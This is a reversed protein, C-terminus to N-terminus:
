SRAPVGIHLFTPRGGRGRQGDRTQVHEACLQPAPSPAMQARAHARLEPLEAAAGVVNDANQVIHQQVGNFGDIWMTCMPCATAQRKGFMLHYVILSPDPTAFLERLRVTRVPEDDADLNAPGEQFEYDCVSSEQPLNRRLSAVPEIEEVMAREALRLEERREQYSISENALPRLHM